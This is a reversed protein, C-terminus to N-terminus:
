ILRVYNFESHGILLRRIVTEKGHYLFSLLIVTLINIFHLKNNKIESIHLLYFIGLRFSFSCLTLKIFFKIISFLFEVIHIAFSYKNFINLM